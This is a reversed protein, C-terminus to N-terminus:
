VDTTQLLSYMINFNKNGNVALTIFILASQVEQKLHYNTNKSDTININNFGEPLIYINGSYRNTITFVDGSSVFSGDIIVTLDSEDDWFYNTGTIKNNISHQIYFTKTGSSIQVSKYIMSGNSGMPGILGTNGQPGTNGINSGNPGTPGTHGPNGEDGPPKALYISLIIATISLFIAFVM